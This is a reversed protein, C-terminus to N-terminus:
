TQNKTVGHVTVWWAGIDEVIEQLKGSNMDMTDMISDLWRVRQWGRRRKGEIKELM